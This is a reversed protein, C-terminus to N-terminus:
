GTKAFVPLLVAATGHGSGYGTLDHGRSIYTECRVITIINWFIKSLVSQLVNHHEPSGKDSSWIAALDYTLVNNSNIFSDM